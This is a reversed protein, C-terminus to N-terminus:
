ALAPYDTYGEAGPHYFMEPRPENLSADSRLRRPLDPNAIFMQGFAVADAEGVALLREATHKTM